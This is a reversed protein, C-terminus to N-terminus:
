GRRRAFGALLAMASGALWFAGPLPVPDGYINARLNFTVRKIFGDYGSANTGFLDLFAVQEFSGPFWTALSARLVRSSGASLDSFDEWGDLSFAGDGVTFDGRLNDAPGTVLNTLNLEFPQLATGTEFTGFDYHLVTGDFGLAGDGGSMQLVPNAHANVQARLTVPGAALGLDQMEPNRSALALHAMGSFLGASRTDLGVWLSSSDTTSAALGEHGLSGGAWFGTDWTSLSGVLRDTLAGTTANRIGVNRWLSPAGVHVIGFDIVPTLLDAVATAYVRSSLEVATTGLDTIGLGSMGSGDSALGLGLSGSFRGATSTEVAVEIGSFSGSGAALDEIGGFAAFHEPVAAVRVDLAESFGDAPAANWIAVGRRTALDGVRWAGLDLSQPGAHVPHALRYAAGTIGLVQDTVNDFNNVIALSQGVLAGAQHATFTLDFAGTSEGSALPTYNTAVTGRGSLRWDSLSAGDGQTKLAGRLVPGSTGTNAISFSRSVVEGVRVNGFALTANATDGGTVDGLLVQATDGDALIRGGGSVQARGSFANGSGFHPNLYDVRVSVDVGSGLSLHGDNSLIDADSNAGLVLTAGPDIAIIGSQGDIGGNAWLGGGSARVLGANRITGNVVGSGFIEGSDGNSLLSANFTGGGLELVGTNEFAGQV